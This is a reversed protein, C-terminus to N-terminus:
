LEFDKLEKEFLALYKGEHVQKKDSNESEDDTNERPTLCKDIFIYIGGAGLIIALFPLIWATLNFGKKTPAALIREGKTSVFYQIIDEKSQGTEIMQTVQDTIEKAPTCEMSGECASVLMNCGCTCTLSQTIEGATLAFVHAAPILSLAMIIVFISATKPSYKLNM